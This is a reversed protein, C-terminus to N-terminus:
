FDWASIIRRYRAFLQDNRMTKEGRSLEAKEFNAIVNLRQGIRAKGPPRPRIYHVGEPKKPFLRRWKSLSARVYEMLGEEINPLHPDFRLAIQGNAFHSYM